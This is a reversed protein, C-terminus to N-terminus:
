VICSGRACCVKRSFGILGTLLVVIFLITAVTQLFQVGQAESHFLCHLLPSKLYETMMLNRVRTFCDTEGIDHLTVNTENLVTMWLSDCCNFLNGSIFMMTLNASLTQLLSHNLTRFTNNRVDILRLPSCGLSGPLRDLNNNSLNLETLAPMCPLCFHSSSMNTESVSLFQITTQVGELVREPMVKLPNKSLDLSILSTGQFANFPLIKISNERLNLRKLSKMQGFTACSTLNIQWASPPSYFHNDYACPQVFNDQLNLTEIHTLAKLFFPSIHSIGNSQLNLHKLSHFFLQRIYGSNFNRIRWEISQLCNYSFNLIELFPPLSLTELPFTTFQNFSLDIYVLPMLRWNAHLYNKIAMRENVIEEYLDNTELVMEAESNSRGLVNNQLHLFKLRNMKPVIPFYLLKNHSLDLIELSYMQDDESTVFFELSNRSLNLHKVQRLKFDCIYALNNKALNLTELHSLQEFTGEAIESILNEDIAIARLLRSDRFVHHSLRTLSNGTMKLHDLYFKNKLLLEVEDDRLGNKSVDLSRLRGLSEFAKSNSGLHINLRNRSLNLHELRVLNEFAGESILDLQNSSLDLLKLNPLALTHLQTIFNNSLDLRRLRTDLDLPVSSLNQNSWSQDQFVSPYTLMNLCVSTM